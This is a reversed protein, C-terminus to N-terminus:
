LRPALRRAAEQLTVIEFGDRLWDLFEGIRHLKAAAPIRYSRAAAALAHGVGDSEDLLDIGQLHLSVFARGRLARFFAAALSKPSTALLAGTLPLGPAVVTGAPLEVLKASGRRRPDRPSPRYPARLFASRISSDYLFGHSELEELLTPGLRLDSGRYGAPRSALGELAACGARLFNAIEAAPAPALPPGHLALEHGLRPLDGMAHASPADELEDVGVFFTAPAGRRDLLEAFREPARRGVAGFGAPPLSSEPISLRRCLAPLGILDVSVCALKSM